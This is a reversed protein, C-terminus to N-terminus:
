FSCSKACSDSIFYIISLIDFQIQLKFKLMLNRKDLVGQTNSISPLM